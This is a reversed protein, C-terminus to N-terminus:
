SHHINNLIISFIFDGWTMIVKGEGGCVFGVRFIVGKFSDFYGTMSWIELQRLHQINKITQKPWSIVLPRYRWQSQNTHTQLRKKLRYDKLRINRKKGM